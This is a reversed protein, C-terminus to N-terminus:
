DWVMKLLEEREQEKVLEILKLALKSAYQPMEADVITPEVYGQPVPLGISENLRETIKTSLEHIHLKLSGHKQAYPEGTIYECLLKCIDFHAESKYFGDYDTNAYIYKLSAKYLRDSFDDVKADTKPSIQILQENSM